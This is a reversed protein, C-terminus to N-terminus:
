AGAGAACNADALARVIGRADKAATVGAASSIGAPFTADFGVGLVSVSIFGDDVARKDFGERRDNARELVGAAGRARARSLRTSRSILSSGVRHVVATHKNKSPAAAAAVGGGM